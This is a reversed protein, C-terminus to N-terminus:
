LVGIYTTDASTGDDDTILYFNNLNNTPIFGTEDGAGLMFGTTANTDGDSKVTVNANGVYVYGTNGEGAKFNVLELDIDSCQAATTSAGIQGSVVGANCYKIPAGETSFKTVM